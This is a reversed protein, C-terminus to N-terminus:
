IGLTYESSVGNPLIVKMFYRGASLPSQYHVAFQVTGTPVWESDNEVQWTWYPYTGGAESQHPIRTFNGERGFFVDVRDLATVRMSGTNKVWGFVDFLANGNTDQWWGTDDLEASAHVFSLHFKMKDAANNAMSTVADGGEIIAPYAVNFLMVVMIMSVVIMLATTITKDM